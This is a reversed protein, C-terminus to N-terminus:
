CSNDSLLCSNSGLRCEGNGRLDTVVLLYQTITLNCVNGLSVVEIDMLIDMIGGTVLSEEEM